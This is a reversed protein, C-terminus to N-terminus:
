RPEEGPMVPPLMFPGLDAPPEKPKHAEVWQAWRMRFADKEGLDIAKEQETRKRKLMTRRYKAYLKPDVYPKM